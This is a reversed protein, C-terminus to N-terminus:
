LTLLGRSSARVDVGVPLGSLRVLRTWVAEDAREADAVFRPLVVDYWHRRWGDALPTGALAATIQLDLHLWHELEPLPSPRAGFARHGREHALRAVARDLVDVRLGPLVSALTPSCLWDDQETPVLRRALDRTMAKNALTLDGALAAPPPKAAVPVAHADAQARALWSEPEGTQELVGTALDAGSAALSGALASVAGPLLRDCGRILVVYRGSAAAVGARVAAYATSAPPLARFRPDDPLEAVAAGVPRVVVDLLAHTQGRVSALCEEVRDGEEAIVVVSVLGVDGGAVGLRGGLAGLLRGRVPGPVRALAQRGIERLRSRPPM